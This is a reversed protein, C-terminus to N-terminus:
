PTSRESRKENNEKRTITIIDGVSFVLDTEIEWGYTDSDRGTDKADSIVYRYRDEWKKASLIEM